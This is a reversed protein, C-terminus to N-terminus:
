GLNYLARVTDTGSIASKNRRDAIAQDRAESSLYLLFETVCEQMLELM